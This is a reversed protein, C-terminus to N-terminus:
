NTSCSLVEPDYALYYAMVWETATRPISSLPESDTWRVLGRTGAARLENYRANRAEATDFRETTV